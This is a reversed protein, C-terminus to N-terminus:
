KKGIRSPLGVGNTPDPPAPLGNLSGALNEEIEFRHFLHLSPSLLSLNDGNHNSSARLRDQRGASHDPSHVAWSLQGQFPRDLFQTSESANIHKM